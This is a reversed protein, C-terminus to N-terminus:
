CVPDSFLSDFILLFIPIQGLKNQKYKSYVVSTNEEIINLFLLSFAM